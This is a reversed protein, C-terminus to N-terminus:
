FDYNDQSNVQPHRSFQPYYDSNTYDNFSDTNEGTVTNNFNNNGPEKGACFLNQQLSPYNILDNETTVSGTLKDSLLSGRTTYENVSNTKANGIINNQYYGRNSNDKLGKNTDPPNPGLRCFRYGCKDNKSNETADQCLECNLNDPPCYYGTNKNFIYQSCVKPSVFSPDICACASRNGSSCGTKTQIQLTELIHLWNVPVDEHNTVTQTSNQIFSPSSFEVLTSNTDDAYTYDLIDNNDTDLIIINNIGSNYLLYRTWRQITEGNVTSDAFYVSSGITGNVSIGVNGSRNTINSPLSDFYYSIAYTSVGSYPFNVTTTDTSTNGLFKSSYYQNEEGLSANYHKENSCFLTSGYQCSREKKNSVLYFSYFLLAVLFSFFYYVMSVNTFYKLDKLDEESVM